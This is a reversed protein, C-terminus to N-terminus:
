LYWVGVHYAPEGGSTNTVITFLALQGFFLPFFCGRSFRPVNFALFLSKSAELHCPDCGVRMRDHRDAHVVIGMTHSQVQGGARGHATTGLRGLETASYM